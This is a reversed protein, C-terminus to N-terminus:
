RQMVHALFLFKSGRVVAANLLGFRSGQGTM